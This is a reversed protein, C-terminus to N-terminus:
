IYFHFTCKFLSSRLLVLKCLKRINRDSMVVMIYTNPTFVDIFVAFKSNRVEMATFQSALKSYFVCLVYIFPKKINYILNELPM